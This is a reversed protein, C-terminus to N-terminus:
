DAHSVGKYTPAPRGNENKGYGVRVAGVATMKKLWRWATVRSVGFVEAVEGATANCGTNVEYNCLYIWVSDLIAKWKMSM